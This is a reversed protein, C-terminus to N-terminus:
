TFLSLIDTDGCDSVDNGSQVGPGLYSLLDMPDDLNDPLMDLADQISSGTGNILPDLGADGDNLRSEAAGATPGGDALPVMEGATAGSVSTPNGDTTSVDPATLSSRRRTNSPSSSTSSSSTQGDNSNRHQLPPAEQPTHPLHSLTSMPAVGASESPTRPHLSQGDLPTCIQSGSLQSGVPTPPLSAAHDGSPRSPTTGPTMNGGSGGGNQQVDDNPLFSNSMQSLCGIYDPPSGVSTNPFWGAMTPGADQMMHQQPHQQLPGGGYGGGGRPMCGGNNSPQDGGPMMWQNHALWLNLTPLSMTEPSVSKSWQSVVTADTAAIVPKWSATPDVTVELAQVNSMHQLIGWVYQDVELGEFLAPKDCIPCMWICREANVRLYAELDFCQIHTCDIGRAPLMIRRRSMPCVLSINMKDDNPPTVSMACRQSFSRKIKAISQDAVVLRQSLVSQIASKVTPRHVLQIIFLHSCCCSTVAIQLVNRGPQCVHKLYVPRQNKGDLGRHIELPVNNVSISVSAPWNTKMQRDEHHFSKLQVDFEPRSILQQYINNRIVFILNSISLNHELRFPALILGDRMVFTLRPEIGGGGVVMGGGGRDMM